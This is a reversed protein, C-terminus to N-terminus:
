GAFQGAKGTPDEFAKTPVDKVHHLLYLLSGDESFIPTNVPQWFKKVFHGTADRVDYRQVAMAHPKGTETATVLSIYLNNVGDALPDDPNDPFVNFLFEGAINARNTMTAKGYNETLDVIHLGPGPDLLLLLDSSTEFSEQFKFRDRRSINIPRKLWGHHQFGSRVGLCEADLAALTRRTSSLMSAITRRSVENPEQSLLREFRFINQQLIFRQL